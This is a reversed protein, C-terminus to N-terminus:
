LEKEYTVEVKQSGTKISGDAARVPNLFVQYVKRVTSLVRPNGAADKQRPDVSQGTVFVRFNRSRVATLDFIRAFYEEVGRDNWETPATQPSTWQAANGFFAAGNTDRLQSLKATSIFPATNRSAIVSDAFKDAEESQRPSYFNGKLSNPVIDPDRSLLIGAGLARLAERSATNLNLLGRTERRTGATLLDLLQSARVGPADFRTFEPRGIRLTFGGGYGQDPTTSNDIDSWQNAATPVIKWQAPDFVHAIETVSGYTNANSISAPAKSPDIAPANSPRTTSPATADNAGVTGMATDHGGDPWRSPKVEKGIALSSSRSNRSWMTSNSYDNAAQPANNYYSSRPDGPSYVSTVGYAFGPLTGNWKYSTQGGGGSPNYLDTNAMRVGGLPADVIQSGTGGSGQWQIEYRGKRTENLRLPSAPITGGTSLTYTAPGFKLVRFENPQLSVPQPAFPVGSVSEGTSPKEPDHDDDFYTYVGLNLLHRYFDKYTITGNAAKDTLNWLEIYSTIEITVTDASVGTWNVRDYFESVLPYSDLGRYNAGVTADSDTDAYDVINAAITKRYGDDSAPNKATGGFGGRRLEAWDPLNTAIATAIANVGGANLNTNLDTKAKGADPYNAAPSPSARALVGYPIVAQELDPKLGAVVNQQLLVPSQSAVAERLTESTRLSARDSIINNDDTTDDSTSTRSFLTWLATRAPVPLSKLAPDNEVRTHAGSGGVDNGVVAADLYGGLDEIWFCYRVHTAPTAGPTAAGGGPSPDSDLPIWTTTVAPLPSPNPSVAPLLTPLNVATGLSPTANPAPTPPATPPANVSITQPTGGSFLPYYTIQGPPSQSANGIFYYHPSNYDAAGTPAPSPAQRVIIFHDNESILNGAGDTTLAKKAAELGSQVAFEAQSRYTYSSSTARDNSASTLLSVAMVAALVLMLLTVVLAFGGASLSGSRPSTM